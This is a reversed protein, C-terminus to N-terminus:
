KLISVSFFMINIKKKRTISFFDSKKLPFHVFKELGITKPKLKFGLVQYQFKTDCIPLM